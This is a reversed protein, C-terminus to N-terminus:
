RPTKRRSVRATPADIADESKLDDLLRTFAAEFADENKWNSFAPIHYERVIEALDKGLDSDFASWAKIKTWSALGVPFLVRSGEQQERRVARKIEQRVWTSAMSSKSLVLLLKDYVRIAEDIQDISKRGGRLDEPAFWVRLKEQMMRGHLRVAFSQDKSSHSIFCSYFQIPKISGILAKQNEILHEPVGCGRLFAEPINGNSRFLTDIGLTSPADHGISELGRTTCLDVNAFITSGCTAFSFDTNDLSASSFNTNFLVAATLKALSLDAFSFNSNFLNASSLDTGSLRANFLNVNMLSANILNVGSLDAGTLDAYDLYEGSFDTERSYHYGKRRQRQENWEAVGKPGGRLLKLAENRDM